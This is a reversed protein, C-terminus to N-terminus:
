CACVDEQYTEQVGGSDREIQHSITLSVVAIVFAESPELEVLLEARESYSRQVDSDGEIRFSVKREDVAFATETM